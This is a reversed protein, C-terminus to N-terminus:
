GELLQPVGAQGVFGLVAGAGQHHRGLGIVIRCAPGVPM